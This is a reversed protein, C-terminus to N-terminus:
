HFEHKMIIIASYSIKILIIGPFVYYVHHAFVVRVNYRISHSIEINNIKRENFEIKLTKITCTIHMVPVVNGEERM